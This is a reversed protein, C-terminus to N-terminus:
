GTAFFMNWDNWNNWVNLVNRFSEVPKFQQVETGAHGSRKLHDTLHKIM